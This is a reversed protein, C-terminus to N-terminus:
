ELAVHDGMETAFLEVLEDRTVTGTVVGLVIREWRDADLRVAVGHIRLFAVSAAFAVRKNGDIFPHNKALGHLYVAALEVLSGYYGSQPAMVASELLGQDRVGPSGGFRAIAKEHTAVVDEVELFVVDGRKM